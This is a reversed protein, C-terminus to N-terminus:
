DVKCNVSSLVHLVEIQNGNVSSNPVRLSLGSIGQLANFQWTFKVMYQSVDIAILQQLVHKRPYEIAFTSHQFLSAILPQEQCVLDATLWSLVGKQITDIEIALVDQHQLVRKALMLKAFALSVSSLIVLAILLEALIFGKRSM